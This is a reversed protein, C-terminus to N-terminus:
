VPKPTEAEPKSEEKTTVNVAVLCIDDALPEDGAFDHVAQLMGAIMEQASNACLNQLVKEMREVGFLEGDANAAECVGDTFFIFVDGDTLRVQGATYAEHEIVGLAAGRPEPVQLRRVAHTARHVLFPAPHGATSYTAVRATTDALMYFGSVFLPEPLNKLINYFQRNMETMFHRANRGQRSLDQILARLVATILASRTGHGMVDAIMIGGCGNDPTFIDFFDGGLILAPEYLHCFELRLRGKIHVTPVKPYPRELYARQFDRALQLDRELEDVRSNRQARWSDEESKRWDEFGKRLDRELVQDRWEAPLDVPQKTVRELAWIGAALVRSVKERLRRRLRRGWWLAALFVAMGLALMAAGLLM